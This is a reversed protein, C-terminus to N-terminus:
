KTLYLPIKNDHRFISGRARTMFGSKIILSTSHIELIASKELKLGIIEVKGKCIITLKGGPKITTGDYLKVNGTSEITVHAGDEIIAMGEHSIPRTSYEGCYVDGAFIYHRSKNFKINQLTLPMFLPLISRGYVSMAVNPPITDIIHSTKGAICNSTITENNLNRTTIICGDEPINALTHSNNRSLCEIKKPVKVWPRTLPDGLLNHALKIHHNSEEINKGVSIYISKSKAEAAGLTIPTLQAESTLQELFKAYMFNSPQPIISERTYGLFAVGGYDKGMVYSEGFNKSLDYTTYDDKYIDFPMTTCAVSYSWHPHTRNKLNDLSYEGEDWLWGDAYENHLAQVGYTGPSNISNYTMSVGEPKGHGQFDVYGFNQRNLHNIIDTGKPYAYNQYVITTDKYLKAILDKDYENFYQNFNKNVAAYAKNLYSADGLGPNMEYLLLKDIFANVDDVSKCTLRGINIEYDYDTIIDTTGLHFPIDQGVITSGGKPRWSNNLEGFYLDSPTRVKKGSEFPEATGYRIPLQGGLLVHRTAFNSYAYSLFSRLKGADDNLDSVVDGDAFQSHSLIDEICVVNATYGASKRYAALREFARKFNRTTVIIYEYPGDGIFPLKRRVKQPSQKAINGEVEAPNLVKRKLEEASEEAISMDAPFVPRPTLQSVDDQISWSLAIDMDYAFTVANNMADYQVPHIAVAVTKNIGASYSEGVIEAIPAPTSRTYLAPNAHTISEGRGDTSGPEQNPFPLHPLEHRRQGTVRTEINFKESNYPVSFHIIKVPLMPAGSEGGSFLGETSIKSYHANGLIASEICLSNKDFQVHASTADSAHAMCASLICIYSLSLLRKM